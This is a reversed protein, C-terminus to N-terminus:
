AAYEDAEDSEMSEHWVDQWDAFHHTIIAEMARRNKGDREILIEAFRVPNWLHSMRRKNGEHRCGQRMLAGRLFPNAKLHTLKSKWAESLKFKEAIKGTPIGEPLTSVATTGAGAKVADGEQVANDAQEIRVRPLGDPLVYGKEDAWKAWQRPALPSAQERAAKREITAVHEVLKRPQPNRDAAVDDHRDPNLGTLLCATERATWFPLSLWYDWDPSGFRRAIAAYYGAAMDQNM